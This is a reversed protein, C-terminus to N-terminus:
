SGLTEVILFACIATQAGIVSGVVVQELSHCNSGMRQCAQMVVLWWMLAIAFERYPSPVPISLLYLSLFTVVMVLLQMHGSPMGWTRQKPTRTTQAYQPFASPSQVKLVSCDCSDTLACPREGWGILKAARKLFMNLGLSIMLAILLIIFTPNTIALVGCVFFIAIPTYRLLQYLSM